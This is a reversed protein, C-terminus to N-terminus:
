ARIDPFAINVIFLDLEAMFVGVSVVTFCGGGTCYASRPRASPLLTAIM